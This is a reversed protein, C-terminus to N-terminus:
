REDETQLKVVKVLADLQVLFCDPQVRVKRFGISVKCVGQFHARKGKQLGSARGLSPPNVIEEYKM